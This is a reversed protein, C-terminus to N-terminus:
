RRMAGAAERRVTRAWDITQLAFERFPRMTNHRGEPADVGIEVTDVDAQPALYTGLLRDWINTMEGFNRDHHQAGRGHHLRHGAPTSLGLRELWALGTLRSHLFLAVFLSYVGFIAIADSGFGAVALALGNVISSLASELPHLRYANVVTFQHPSHHNRHLPWLWKSHLARHECYGVFGMYLWLVPLQIWLSLEKLPLLGAGGSGAWRESWGILGLALLAALTQAGGTLLLM